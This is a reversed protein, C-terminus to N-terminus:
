FISRRNIKGRVGPAIFWEKGFAARFMQDDMDFAFGANPIQSEHKALASRKTMVVDSVDIETNIESAPMGFGQEGLDSEIESPVMAAQDENLSGMIELFYDRNMTAQLVDTIGAIEAARVGVRHVMIHDPHGYGGNEDYITVTDAGEEVLIAALKASALELDARWFSEPHDNAPTGIMGSDRYGLFYVRSVGLVKASAELEAQRVIKLEDSNSVFGDPYEGEEGGTAIILVVRHGASSTQIIVGGTIMCEDDPHAHFCVLTSM